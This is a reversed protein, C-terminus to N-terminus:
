LRVKRELLWLQRGNINEFEVLQGFIIMATGYVYIVDNTTTVCTKPTPKSLLSSANRSQRFIEYFIQSLKQTRFDTKSIKNWIKPGLNQSRCNYWLFISIKSSRFRALALWDAVIFMFWMIQQLLARRPSPHAIFVLEMGHCNFTRIFNHMCRNYFQIIHRVRFLITNARKCISHIRESVNRTTQFTKHTM